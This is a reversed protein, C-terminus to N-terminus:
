TFLYFQLSSNFRELGGRNPERRITYCDGQTDIKTYGEIVCCYAYTMRSQESGDTWMMAELMEKEAVEKSPYTQRDITIKAM